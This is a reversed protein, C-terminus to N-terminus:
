KTETQKSETKKEKGTIKKYFITLDEITVHGIESLVWSAFEAFARPQVKNKRM